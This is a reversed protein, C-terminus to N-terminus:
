FHKVVAEALIEVSHFIEPNLEEDSFTVDFKREIFLIIEVMAMSDIGAENQLQTKPTIVMSEDVLNNQIFKLLEHSVEVTTM